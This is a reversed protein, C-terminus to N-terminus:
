SPGVSFPATVGIGALVPATPRTIVVPADLEIMLVGSPLVTYTSLPPTDPHTCGIEVAVPVAPLGIVTTGWGSAMAIVGFPFVRYTALALKLRPLPQTVGIVTAV